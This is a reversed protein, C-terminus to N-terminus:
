PQGLRRAPRGRRRVHREARAAPLAGDHARGSRRALGVPGADVHRDARQVPERSASPLAALALERAEALPQRVIASAAWTHGGGGLAVAVAEADVAESRSRVVCFVRDEMEVLLLLARCDTLDVLKHALNSIGDVYQPWAVAAVLVEDGAAQVPELADSLAHLLEREPAALPLHLYDALLDQRAGHRLCWALADM